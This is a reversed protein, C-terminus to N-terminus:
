RWLYCSVSHNREIEKLQPEAQSCIDMASPCRDRFRCGKPLNIPSPPEGKLIKRERRIEPDPEPVSSLLAQTYPHLPNAFISGAGGTEVINGLYMVGVRDCIYRVVALDHAIFVYTMKLEKQLDVLLNLIRAGVSADLASTPEDLIMLDPNSALARAIGVRQRMGGSLEHPYKDVHEKSLGVKDLLEVVRDSIEVRDRVVQFNIMPESLLTRIKLRPNLSGVPDQFVMQMHQRMMRLERKQLNTLDIGKLLVRGSTPEILRLICRAATTKGCGSEGVLGFTEGADVHFNVGDVAHVYLFDQVDHDKSSFGFSKKLTRAYRSLGTEQLFYKRLDQVDLLPTM